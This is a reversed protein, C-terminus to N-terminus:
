SIIEGGAATALDPGFAAAPTYAGPKGEGRALRAAIEASVAATFDMAEGTKLWGERTTGDPWTVVAHGWSHERPRPAAKASIGALRKIAFRRLPELRLLRGAFPLVARAAPASPMMATAASVNPAASTRQAALLEASPAESVAAHEGDPLTLRKAEAGIRSKTLGGARYRRGGTVLVDIISAALATGLLGDEVAVSAVADVRVESPVPKGECLAAVVAETALVGFGAGTVLTSGAAVAEDHLALLRPVSTLDAAQDLYHGGPLCAHVITTASEAYDGITNIVVAPREKAIAAAIREATDAIVVRLGTSAAIERLRASERGVLVVSEGRDLLRGTVARGVRGTAGLVWISM